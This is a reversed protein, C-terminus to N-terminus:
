RDADAGAEPEQDEGDGFGDDDVNFDMLEVPLGDGEDVRILGCATCTAQCFGDRRLHASM